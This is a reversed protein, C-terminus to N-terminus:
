RAHPSRRVRMPAWRASSALRIAGATRAQTAVALVADFDVARFAAQSGAVKITTGLAIYVDDVKPWAPLQGFDVVISTLRPHQRLTATRRVLAVVSAHRKDTSLAARVARGVRGAAEAVMAAEAAPGVAAEAM